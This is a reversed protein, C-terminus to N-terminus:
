REHSGGCDRPPGPAIALWAGIRARTVPGIGPVRELDAVSDFPRMCRAAVIAEARAPGIGSLLELSAADARNPDLRHGFLLAAAGEPAPGPAGDCRVEAGRGAEAGSRAPAACPTVAATEPWAALLYLASATALAARPV